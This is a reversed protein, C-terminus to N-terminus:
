NAKRLQKKNIEEFPEGQSVQQCETEHKQLSGIKETKVWECGVEKQLRSWPYCCPSGHSQADSPALEAHSQEESGKAVYWRWGSPILQCRGCNAM